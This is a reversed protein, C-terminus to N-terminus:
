HSNVSPNTQLLFNMNDAVALESTELQHNFYSMKASSLQLKNLM